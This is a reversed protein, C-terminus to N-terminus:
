ASNVLIAYQAAARQRVDNEDNSGVFAVYRGFAVLCVFRANPHDAWLSQKQEYCQADNVGGPPAIDHDVRARRNTDVIEPLLKSAATDDRTRLLSGDPTLACRDVGAEAYLGAKLVGPGECTVVARPGVTNYTRSITPQQGAVFARRLMDDPDPPLQTFVIDFIPTLGAMLPMQLNLINQVKQALEDFYGERKTVGGEGYNISVAFYGSAMTAAISSDEPNYHAHAQPYGPITAHQNNANVAFDADDMAGAARSAADANRYATVLVTLTQKIPTDSSRDSQGLFAYATTMGYQQLVPEIVPTSNGSVMTAALKPDPTAAGAVDNINPDVDYPNVVAEALRYAALYRGEEATGTAPLTRPQTGYRGVDLNSLDVATATTPKSTGGSQTWVVAGVALAVVLAV